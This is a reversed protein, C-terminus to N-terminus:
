IVLPKEMLPFIEKRPQQKTKLFTVQNSAFSFHGSPFLTYCKFASSIFGWSQGLHPVHTKEERHNAKGRVGQECGGPRVGVGRLGGLGPARPIGLLMWTHQLRVVLLALGADERFCGEGPNEATGAKSLLKGVIGGM